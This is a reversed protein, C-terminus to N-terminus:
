KINIDKFNGNGKEELITANPNEEGNRSPLKGTKSNIQGNKLADQTHRLINKVDELSPPTFKNQYSMVGDSSFYTGAIQPDKGFMVDDLGMLHGIEHAFTYKGSAYEHERGEITTWNSFIQFGNKAGMKIAGPDNQQEEGGIYGTYINGTENNNKKINKLTGLVVQTNYIEHANENDIKGKKNTINKLVSKPATELFKNFSPVKDSVDHVKIQFSVTYGEIEYKTANWLNAGNTANHVNNTNQGVTYIDAVVIITKSVHDIKLGFDRGDYDVFLVPNNGSYLYPSLNPYKSDLPDVSWWRGLKSNYMRAGFDYADADKDNEKGNFGFRYELSSQYNRDPMGWGFDYYLQASNVIATYYEAISDVAGVEKGVQMDSLTALVNGLHNSLEFSKNGIEFAFNVSDGITNFDSHVSESSDVRVLVNNRSLGLRSSASTEATIVLYL